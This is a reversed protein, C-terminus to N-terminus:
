VSVCIYTKLKARAEKDILLSCYVLLSCLPFHTGYSDKGLLDSSERRWDGEKGRGRGEERTDRTRLFVRVSSKPSFPVHNQEPIKWRLTM